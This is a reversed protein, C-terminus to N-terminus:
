KVISMDAGVSIAVADQPGVPRCENGLLSAKGGARDLLRTGPASDGTDLCEVKTRKAAFITDDRLTKRATPQGDDNRELGLIVARRLSTALPEM